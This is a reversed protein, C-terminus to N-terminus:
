ELFAETLTVAVSATFTQKFQSLSLVQKICDLPLGHIAYLYRLPEVNPRRTTSRLWSTLHQRYGSIESECLLTYVSIAILRENLQVTRSM